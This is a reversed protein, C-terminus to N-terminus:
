YLYRFTTGIGIKIYRFFTLETPDQLRIMNVLHHIDSANLEVKISAKSITEQESSLVRQIVPCYKKCAIDVFHQSKKLMQSLSISVSGKELLIKVISSDLDIEYAEWWYSLFGFITYTAYTKGTNNKGCM